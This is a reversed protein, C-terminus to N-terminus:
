WLHLLAPLIDKAMEKVTYNRKKIDDCDEKLLIGYRIVDRKTPLESM